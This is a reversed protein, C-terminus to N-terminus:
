APQLMPLTRGIPVDLGTYSVVSVESSLSKLHRLMILIYDTTDGSTFAEGCEECVQAPVQKVVVIIDGDLVYPITAKGPHLLGGCQPCRGSNELEGNM